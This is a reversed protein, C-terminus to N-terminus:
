IYTAGGPTFFRDDLWYETYKILTNLTQADHETENNPTKTGLL